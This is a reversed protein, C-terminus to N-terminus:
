LGQPLLTDEEGGRRERGENRKNQQSVFLISSVVKREKLLDSIKM